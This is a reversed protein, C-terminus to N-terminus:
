MELVKEIKVKRRLPSYVIVEQQPKWILFEEARHALLSTFGPIYDLAGQKEKKILLLEFDKMFGYAMNYTLVIEPPSFESSLIAPVYKSNWEISLDHLYGTNKFFEEAARINETWSQMKRKSVIGSITKGELNKINKIKKINRYRFLNLTGSPLKDHYLERVFLLRNIEWKTMPKGVSSMFDGHFWKNMTISVSFLKNISTKALPNKLNNIKM